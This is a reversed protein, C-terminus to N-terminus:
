EDFISRELEKEMVSDPIIRFIFNRVSRMWPSPLHSIKGFLRSKDRIQKVKNYRKTEYLKVAEDWGHEELLKAFVIASEMGMAAGQGMNPTTAHAADGLLVVGDKQLTIEATDALVGYLLETSTIDIHQSVSPWEGRFEEFMRLIEEFGLNEEGGRLTTVLFCYLKGEGLPFMGVRKQDGWMEYAATSDFGEPTDIVFRWCGQMSSVIGVEGFLEERVRSYLGDAGIVHDYREATGNGFVAEYGNEVKRLSQLRHSLRITGQDVSRSLLEHLLHRHITVTAYGSREEIKQLDIRGIEKGNEDTSVLRKLIRSQALLKEKLGIDGFLKVVNAGLLLGAGEARLREGKEALIPEYGLAELRNKMMLGAVGGGVILVSSKM